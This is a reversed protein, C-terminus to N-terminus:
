RPPGEASPCRAQREVDDPRRGRTVARMIKPVKYASLRGALAARLDDLDQEGFPRGDPVVVAAAVLQGAAESDVGTVHSRLGALEAIAAEVERPSVNAGRTKIMDGLRGVFYFLGDDDVRVLDGTRYWGDPEFVESRERGYYGEM